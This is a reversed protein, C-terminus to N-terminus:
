RPTSNGLTSTRSSGTQNGPSIRPNQSLTKFDIIDYAKLMQSIGPAIELPNNIGIDHYWIRMRMEVARGSNGM